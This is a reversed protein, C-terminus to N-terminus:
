SYTASRRPNAGPRRDGFTARWGPSEALLELARALRAANERDALWTSRGSPHPLPIVQILRGGREVGFSTGVRDALPAPPLFREIAHRGVAIVTAPALLALERELHDSCRAIEDRAPARDGGKPERGPFCRLAAAIWVRGRFEDEPVGLRAFWSFLTKGATFAFFRREIEERPGPAQGVLLLPGPAAPVVAIPTGAVAPCRRCRALERAHALLARTSDTAPPPADASM